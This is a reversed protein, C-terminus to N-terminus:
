GALLHILVSYVHVNFVVGVVYFTFSSNHLQAPFPFLFVYLLNKLLCHQCKAVAKMWTLLCRSSSLSQSSRLVCRPCSEYTVHAICITKGFFFFLVSFLIKHRVFVQISKGTHYTKFQVLPMGM